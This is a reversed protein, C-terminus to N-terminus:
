YDRKSHVEKELEEVQKHLKDLAKLIDMLNIPTGSRGRAKARKKAASMATVSPKIM